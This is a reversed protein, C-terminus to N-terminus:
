GGVAVGTVEGGDDDCGDGNVADELARSIVENIEEISMTDDFDSADEVAELRAKVYHESDAHMDALDAGLITWEYGFGGTELRVKRKTPTIGMSDLISRWFGRPAKRWNKPISFGLRQFVGQRKELYEVLQQTDPTLWIVDDTNEPDVIRDVPCGILKLLDNVLQAKAEHHRLHALSGGRLEPTDLAKLARRDERFLRLAAFKRVTRRHKGEDDKRVTDADSKGYFRDVSTRELSLEEERSAPEFHGDLVAPDLLDAESVLEARDAKYAGKAAKFLASLTVVDRPQSDWPQVPAKISRLYDGLRHYQSAGGPGGWSRSYALVQCYLDFHEPHRPEFRVGADTAVPTGVAHQGNKDDSLDYTKTTLSLLGHRIDKYKCAKGGSQPSACLHVVNSRPYRVRHVLQHLDQATGVWGWGLGFICDFHDKVDISYGTGITPTWIVAHYERAHENIWRDLNGVGAEAEIDKITDQSIVLINANPRKHKLLIALTHAETKSQVGIGLVKEQGWAILVQDRWLWKNQTCKYAWPNLAEAEIIEVDSAPANALRLLTKIGWSDIDADAVVVHEANRLFFRLRELANISQSGCMTGGFLHQLYQMWEDIILVRPRVIAGDILMPAKHLSDLTIVIDGGARPDVQSFTDDVGRYHPLGTRGHLTDVLSCRHASAIIPQTRPNPRNDRAGHVASAMWTSKGCGKVGPVGRLVTIRRRLGTYPLYRGDILDSSSFRTLLPQSEDKNGGQTNNKKRLPSTPVSSTPVPQLDHSCNFIETFDPTPVFDPDLDDGIPAWWRQGAAFDVVSVFGDSVKVSASPTNVNEPRIYCQEYGGEPIRKALEALRIERGSSDRVLTQLSIRGGKALEGDFGEVGREAAQKQVAEAYTADVDVNFHLALAKLHNIYEAVPVEVSAARLTTQVRYEISGEATVNSALTSPRRMRRDSNSIANDGGFLAVHHKHIEAAQDETVWEGHSIYIHLSKGPIIVIAHGTEHAAEVAKRASDRTDGSMIIVSFIPKGIIEEVKSFVKIQDEITRSDVEIMSVRRGVIHRQGLGTRFPNVRKRDILFGERKSQEVRQRRAGLAAEVSFVHPTFFVGCKGALISRTDVFFEAETDGLSMYDDCFELDGYLAQFAQEATIDGYHVTRFAVDLPKVANPLTDITSSM